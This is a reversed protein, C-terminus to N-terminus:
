AQSEEVQDHDVLAMARLAASSEAQRSIRSYKEDAVCIPM